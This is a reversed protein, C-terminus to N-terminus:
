ALILHGHDDITIGFGELLSKSKNATLEIDKFHRSLSSQGFLSIQSRAEM